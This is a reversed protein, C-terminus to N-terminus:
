RYLYLSRRIYGYVKSIVGLVPKRHIVQKSLLNLLDHQEIDKDGKMLQFDIEGVKDARKNLAVNLYLSIEYANLYDTESYNKKYKSFPLISLNSFLDEGTVFRKFRTKINKFL